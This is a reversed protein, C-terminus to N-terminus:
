TMLHTHPGIIDRLIAGGWPPSLFAVREFFDLENEFIALTGKKTWKSNKQPVQSKQVPQRKQTWWPPAGDKTNNDAWASM